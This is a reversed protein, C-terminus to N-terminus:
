VMTLVYSVFALNLFIHGIGVGIVNRTKLVALDGLVGLAVTLAIAGPLTLAAKLLDIEYLHIALWTINQALIGFLPGKYKALLMLIFGRTWLDTIMAMISVLPIFAILETYSMNALGETYLTDFEPKGISLIFVILCISYVGIGLATAYALRNTTIGLDILKVRKFYIVWGVPFLIYILTMRITRIVDYEIDTLQIEYTQYWYLLGSTVGSVIAILIIQIV